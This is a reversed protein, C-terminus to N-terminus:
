VCGSTAVSVIPQARRINGRYQRDARGWAAGFDRRNDRVEAFM